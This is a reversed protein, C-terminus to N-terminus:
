VAERQTPQLHVQSTQRLSTPSWPARPHWSGRPRLSRSGEHGPPVEQLGRAQTLARLRAGATRGTGTQEEGLWGGTESKCM